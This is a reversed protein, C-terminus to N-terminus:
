EKTRKGLYRPEKKVMKDLLEGGGFIEYKNDEIWDTFEDILFRCPLNNDNVYNEYEDILIQRVLPHTNFFNLISWGVTTGAADTGPVNIIGNPLHLPTPEGEGAVNASYVDKLTNQITWFLKNKYTCAAGKDWKSGWGM